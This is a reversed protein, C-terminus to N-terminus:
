HERRKGHERVIQGVFPPFSIKTVRPASLRSFPRGVSRGVTGEEEPPATLPPCYNWKLVAKQLCPWGLLFPAKDPSKPWIVTTELQVMCQFKLAKPFELFAISFYNLRASSTGSMLCQATSRFVRFDLGM